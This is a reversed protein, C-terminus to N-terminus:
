NYPSEDTQPNWIVENHELGVYTSGSPFMNHM